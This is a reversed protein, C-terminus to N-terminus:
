ANQKLQILLLKINRENNYQIYRQVTKESFDGPVWWAQNSLWKQYHSKIHLDFHSIIFLQYCADVFRSHVCFVSEEGRTDKIVLTLGTRSNLIEDSVTCKVHDPVAQIQNVSTGERLKTIFNNKNGLTQRANNAIIFRAENFKRMASVVSATKKQSILFKVVTKLQNINM